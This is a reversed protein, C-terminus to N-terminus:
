ILRLKDGYVVPASDGLKAEQIHGDDDKVTSLSRHRDKMRCRENTM